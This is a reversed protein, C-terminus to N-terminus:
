EEKLSENFEKVADALFCFKDAPITKTIRHVGKSIDVITSDGKHTFEIRIDEYYFVM